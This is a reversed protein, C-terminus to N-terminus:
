DLQRWDEPMDLNLENSFLTIPVEKTKAAPHWLVFKGLLRCPLDALASRWRSTGHHEGGFRVFSSLAYSVRRTEGAKIVCRGRPGTQALESLTYWVYPVTEIGDGGSWIQLVVKPTEEMEVIMVDSESSNKFDFVVVVDDSRRAGVSLTCTVGQARGGEAFICCFSFLVFIYKNM